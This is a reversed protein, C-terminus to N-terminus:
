GEAKKQETYVLLNGIFFWALSLGPTIAKAFPLLAPFWLILKPVFASLGISLFVTSYIIPLSAGRMGWPKGLQRFSWSLYEKDKSSIDDIPARNPNRGAKAANRWRQMVNLDLKKELAFMRNYFHRYQDRMSSTSIHWQFCLFIGIASIMIIVPASAEKVLFGVTALLISTATAYAAFTSFFDRISISYMAEVRELEKAVKELDPPKGIGDTTKSSSSPTQIREVPKKRM